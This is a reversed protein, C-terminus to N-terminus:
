LWVGFSPCDAFLLGSLYFVFEENLGSLLNTPFVPVGGLTSFPMKGPRIVLKGVGASLDVFKTKNQRNM